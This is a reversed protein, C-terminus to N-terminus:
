CSVGGLMFSFFTRVGSGVLYFGVSVTFNAVVEVIALKFISKHHIPGEQLSKSKHEPDDDMEDETIDATAIITMGHGKLKGLDTCQQGVHLFRLTRLFYRWPMM